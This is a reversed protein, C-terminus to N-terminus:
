EPKRGTWSPLPWRARFKPSSTEKLMGEFLEDYQEEHIGGLSILRQKSVQMINIMDGVVPEHLETGYSYNLAIIQEQLDVLGAQELIDGLVPTVALQWHSFAKGMNWMMQMVGFAMANTSTALSIWSMESETLRFTGGPKLIRLCETFLKLWVEESRELVGTIFRINVYDFYGDEFALPDLINMLAFKVRKNQRTTTHSSAYSLVRRNNDIGWIEEIEPQIRIAERIWGGPGCAVDLIKKGRPDFGAPFLDMSTTVARDQKRLRVFEASNIYPDSTDVIYTQEGLIESDNDSM